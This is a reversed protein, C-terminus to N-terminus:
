GPGKLSSFLDALFAINAEEVISSVSLVTDIVHHILQQYHACGFTTPDHESSNCPNVVLTGDGNTVDERLQNLWFEAVGKMM